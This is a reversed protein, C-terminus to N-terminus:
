ADKDDDVPFHMRAAVQPSRAKRTRKRNHFLAMVDAKVAM